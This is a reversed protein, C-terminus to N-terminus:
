NGLSGRHPMCIIIEELKNFNGQKFIYDLAVLMAEAGELGYRKVHPFKKGM